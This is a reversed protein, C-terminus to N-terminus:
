GAFMETVWVMGDAARVVAVGVRTFRDLLLNGRHSPSAWLARHANELTSATAVNEGAVRASVGAAKLRVSPDGTGVNHGIMRAKLMEESHAKAIRDLQPDRVLAALSESARAANIMRLMADDDDKAGKGAAEGPASAPVFQGPPQAGAWIMAELVPRPGTSVTALVQVVWGGPQDVSFTSRVRDGSLSALVTKPAGRPGLLVVKAGTAPILMTGDLTIWQGVRATTPLPAIDALADIAIVSIITSGSPATVRAAGCRRTGLMNWPALWAKVRRALDDDELSSGAISWARPWVHPDGAARLYFALEDAHLPGAGTAQRQATRSAVEALAGDTPGCLSALSAVRAEAAARRPSQTAPRWSVPPLAAAKPANSPPGQGLGDRAAGLALVLPLAAVLAKIGPVGARRV